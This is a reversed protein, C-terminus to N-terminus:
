RTVERLTQLDLELPIGHRVEGVKVPLVFRVRGARKKKDKQILEFIQQPDIEPPLCTPLGLGRLWSAVHEALGSQAIGSRESLRTAAVMGISVAEGHRIHYNSAQEIAHGITHGLNLAAREGQEYPDALITRVKVAMARKVLDGWNGNVLKEWGQACRFVLGMDGLLGHKFVEAIGNRLEAEPLSQLLEPDTLVLAPPHFAGVLNKGQPLDIATKGGLSADVMALLSTPAAVWRIGRMYVSAAFGALDNIMGGGFAVVTSGRELGGALFENWLRVASDLMKSSEGAPLTSCHVSYGASALSAAAREGHIRAVNEDSVLAVPGELHCSRMWDGLQALSGPAVRADYAAKMGSMHFRGLLIQIEWSVEEITLLDTNLRYPFSAYHSLRSQYLVALRQMSEEPPDLLPRTGQSGRLREWLTVPGAMLCIVIGAQEVLTRNHPNLLTGGGLAVVAPRMGIIRQLAESERMRFGSEGEQAFIEAISRGATEAIQQDLDLFPLEYIAALRQGTSTKGSGPPGYIFFIEEGSKIVM